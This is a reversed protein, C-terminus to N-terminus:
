DTPFGFSAWAETRLNVDYGVDQSPIETTLVIARMPCVEICAQKGDVGGETNWFPTDACLDCKQAHQEEFNWQVGAPMFPCGQVCRLCGICKEEDVMRVNGNEEDVHLAGTPCAQACDPHVCQRCQRQLIDDPFAAFSNQVIQIRSLSLNEKGEHALSCALMCSACGSCKKRDVLLYGESAAYAVLGDGVPILKYLAGGIVVGLAVGSSAKLFDRRTLGTQEQVQEAM